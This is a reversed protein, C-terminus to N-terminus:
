QNRRPYSATSTPPVVQFTVEPHTLEPLISWSQSRNIERGEEVDEEFSLSKSFKPGTTYDFPISAHPFKRQSMAQSFSPTEPEEAHSNPTKFLFENQGMSTQVMSTSASSVGIREM